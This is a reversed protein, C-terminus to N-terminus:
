NEENEFVEKLYNQRVKKSAATLLDLQGASPAWYAPCDFTSIIKIWDIGLGSIITLCTMTANSLM